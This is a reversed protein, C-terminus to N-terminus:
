RAWKRAPACVKSLDLGSAGCCHWEGHPQKALLWGVGGGACEGWRRPSVGEDTRSRVLLSACSLRVRGTKSAAGREAGAM